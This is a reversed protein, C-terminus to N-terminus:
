SVRAHVSDTRIETGFGLLDFTVELNEHVQIWKFHSILTCSDCCFRENIAPGRFEDNSRSPSVYIRM